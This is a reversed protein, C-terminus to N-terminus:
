LQFTITVDSVGFSFVHSVAFVLRNWATIRRDMVATLECPLTKIQAKVSKVLTYKFCIYVCFLVGGFNTHYHRCYNDTWCDETDSM